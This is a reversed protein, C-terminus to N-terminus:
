FAPRTLTRKSFANAYKLILKLTIGYKKYMVYCIKQVDSKDHFTYVANQVQTVSDNKLNYNELVHSAINFCMKRASMVALKDPDFQRPLLNPNDAEIFSM